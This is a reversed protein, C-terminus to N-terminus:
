NNYRTNYLDNISKAYIEKDQLFLFLSALKYSNLVELLINKDVANMLEILEKELKVVIESNMLESNNDAFSRQLLVLIDGIHGAIILDKKEPMKDKLYLYRDNVLLFNDKQKRSNYSSMTSGVRQRLYYYYKQNTVVTANANFYLEHLISADEYLRGIPFRVSEFLRRSFLKGGMCEYFRGIKLLNYITEESNYVNEIYECLTYDIEENEIFQYIQCIAIEARNKLTANLLVDCYKENIFDDSDVFTIFDGKAIDLADNRAAAVGANEKHVVIIRSDKEVYEDCIKGSMDKSGDNVLIIEINKYTQNILSEICKGLYKEVNYVPVIISILKDM